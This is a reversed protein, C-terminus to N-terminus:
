KNKKVHVNQHDTTTTEICFYLTTDIIKSYLGQVSNMQELLMATITCPRLLMYHHAIFLSFSSFPINISFFLSDRNEGGDGTLFEFLEYNMERSISVTKQNAAWERLEGWKQVLSESMGAFLSDDPCNGRLTPRWNKEITEGYRLLDISNQRKVKQLRAHGRRFHVSSTSILDFAHLLVFDATFNSATSETIDM